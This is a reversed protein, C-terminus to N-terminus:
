CIFPATRYHEEVGKSWFLPFRFNVRFLSSRWFEASYGLFQFATFKSRGGLSFISSMLQASFSWPKLNAWTEVCRSKRKLGIQAPCEAKSVRRDVWAFGGVFCSGLFLTSSLSVAAKGPRPLARQFSLFRLFPLFLLHCLISFPDNQKPAKLCCFCGWGRGQASRTEDTSAPRRRGLSHYKVHETCFCDSSVGHLSLVLWGWPWYVRWGWLKNAALGQGAAKSNM